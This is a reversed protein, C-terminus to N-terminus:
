CQTFCIPRSMYPAESTQQQCETRLMPHSHMNDYIDLEYFTCLLGESTLMKLQAATSLGQTTNIAM